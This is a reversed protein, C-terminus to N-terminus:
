LGDMPLLPTFITAYLHSRQLFRNKLLQFKPQFGASLTALACFFCFLFWPQQNLDKALLWYSRQARLFKSTKGKDHRWGPSKLLGPMDM